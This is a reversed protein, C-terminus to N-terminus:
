LFGVDKCHKIMIDLHQKTAKPWLLGMKKLLTITRDSKYITQTEDKAEFVWSHLKLLEIIKEYLPDGEFKAFHAEVDNQKVEELEIGLEKLLEVMETMALRNPNHVHYTENILKARTILLVTVKAIYDIFSMDFVIKKMNESLMQLKVAGRFIAYFYDDEINEQFKGNESHFILNGVRYISANIGKERFAMVRKEAEFKSRVYIQDTRQGEDHCYETYLLFDKGPIDGRGTDMTSVYHFDKKKGTVSLELLHETGVVNDRYLEQYLGHHKVNAAPHVIADIIEALEKYLQDDIGMQEESLDARVVVLRDKNREYFDEDFYFNMKKVFRKMAADQSSGRVLLYLKARTTEIFEKVLYAGMFGTSGTLLLAKYENEVDLNPWKEDDIRQLYKENEENIQYELATMGLTQIKDKEKVCHDIIKILYEKYLEAFKEISSKEYEYKNYDFSLCLGDKGISGYIDITYGTDFEPSMNNNINWQFKDEEGDSPEGVQGLYNFSIDPQLKFDFCDKKSPTTLYKLIGYGVGKNPIRRLTEKTLTLQTRLEEEEDPAMGIHELQLLVPYQSTFWGVTRSFDIDEIISERGHGELGILVNNNGKWKKVAMGLASLLIDNIETKYVWNVEKLLRETHQNELEMLISGRNKFARAENGIDKDKPLKEIQSQEVKKWYDFEELAKESDAYQKLKQAWYQYSDTKDQFRIEEGKNALSYGTELDEMIVRWSIGDIVVHHIGIMLFDGNATSFFGLKVLPGKAMDISANIRDVDKKMQIEFDTKDGYDIFEMDFLKDDNLGRNTQVVAGTEDTNFIMRLADHHEVIKEFVKQIIKKDFGDKAHLMVVHNFHHREPFDIGFYWHEIPTMEVNGTVVGQDIKREMKKVTKALLRITPNAFLDNLHISLEKKQLRASILITKISDGGIDFFNDDISIKPIGLVEQWIEALLQETDTTPPAYNEEGTEIQPEPLARRDVKGNSTLPLVDMQVFYSPIMHPPLNELLLKKLASIEMKQPSVFYACLYNAGKRDKKPIVAAEDIIDLQMMQNEIEGPEIRFGRIKVQFDIRGLFEISGHPLWRSLDGTAYMLEGESVLHSVFPNTIFKGATLEPNNLYGRSVGHGGVYLEGPVGVPVPNLGKDLIYATSNAIPEGIPINEIYDKKIMHTVSFTTNETPGYGNIVNIGPFHKRVRKVHAPSVVDGGVLLNKLCKFIESDSDLMQNFLPATMWMTTIKNMMISKKLRVPNLITDKSLLYLSLGNLLSGWIEFTSADFELAGTQLIRDESEFEVYNTDKVLRVVNMHEVMVGKPKGTSGSTYMIYALQDDKYDRDFEIGEVYIDKEDLDIVLPAFDVDEKYNTLLVNTCCDDIIYKKRDIPYDPNLPLYAGGAKLIGLIGAVMEISKKAMIGVISNTKTGNEKLVHALQNSKVNLDRYNISTSKENEPDYFVVATDQPTKVVQEEFLEHITKNWPYSSVTNNFAYLIICKEDEPLIDIESIKQDINKSVSSVIQKYYRMFREVTEEKFLQTNYEMNFQIGEGTEAGMMMMDFKSRKIRYPDSRDLILVDLLYEDSREAENDLTFVVDFLPNRSKDHRSAVKSVLEEFPYNQNEFSALTRKKVEKLFERFTKDGVPYNRMALTDVFMGIIPQLDAHSRGATVTGVVIDDQGSLKSLLINYISFLIMYITNGEKQAIVNLRRTTEKGIEFHLMDGEFTMKSPRKFDTPLNLVPIEGEFQKLWFPEQKKVKQLQPEKKIWEAFDRYQVPLEPLEEEDYFTWLDKVLTVNSVGDSVIHHMDLMLIRTNGWIKILGVRILPPEGFNFPRVFHEVVEQFPLGTVTTWEMGEQDSYIMGDEKTEYYEIEVRSAIEDYDHIKQVAEGDVTFFSTRLSEHRRILKRLAEKLADLEIGKCYVDMLQINYLISDNELQGIFYLRKQASTQPYYEKEEAPEISVYEEKTADKIHSALKRITPMDFVEHMLIKVNLAKHIQTIMVAAKLSHGGMRFFDADISVIDKEMLLINAWIEVLKEEIADRPAVYDSGKQNMEPAPLKKRDIKGNQNLPMKDLTVFYSPIMYEPLDKALAERLNGVEVPESTVIYACLFKEGARDDRAIVITEKVMPQELLKNEIEGTEIRFGRVKVQFDIRGLFDMDGNPMWRVLDGTRYMMGGEVFPDQVFKEITLEPRNLYGRAVGDGGIHLEGPVGIPVPRMNKDLVYLYTNDLAKGISFDGKWKETKKVLLEISTVTTETPGYENCFDCHKTWQQVLSVPCVDGGAIMRKLSPYNKVPITSVFSPVAHIHTLQRTLIFEEFKSEDLLEMKDILILAAGSFLAIYIQEVSADFCISSFQFVREYHDIEFTKMQSFAMNVVMFHEIMVGKPLGTSGSTYISYALNTNSNVIELNGSEGKYLYEDGLDIVECQGDVREKYKEQSLVFKCESDSLMYEIRKGPYDPEIPLYAGGAKLIALMGVMMEASREVLLGVYIDPKVGKARLVRALQNVRKNFGSYTLQEDRYVVAINGPTKEVQAEFVEHITHSKPYEAHTQNLGYIIENKEDSSLLEIEFVKKTPNSLTDTLINVLGQHIRIVDSESFRNVQYEYELELVGDIDKNAYNIHISLPNTVYGQFIHEYHYAKKEVDGHASILLDLIYGIDGGTIERLETALRDFPYTQHNKLIFNIEKGAEEILLNFPTNEDVNLVFPITSVFMGIIERRSQKARNHNTSGIIVEKNGSARAAYIALGTFILKFLSTKNSKCYRHMMERVNDPFPIIYGAGRLSVNESDRSKTTLSTPEPLPLLKKHWFKRDKSIQESTLYEQEESIYSTYSPNLLDDVEKGAIIDSYFKDIEAFILPYSWGDSAIHHFKLYYGSEADNIKLFAFYFLDSDLYDIPKQTTRKLWERLRRESDPGCFDFYDISENEHQSSNCIYQLPEAEYDFEVIRIRFGDNKRIVNSIAQELVNRELQKKYRVIFAQTSVATGPHLKEDYYIRKQAHTLPYYIKNDHPTKKM